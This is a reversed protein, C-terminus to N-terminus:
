RIQAPCSDFEGAWLRQLRDEARNTAAGIEVGVFDIGIEHMAVSPVAMEAPDQRLQIVAHREDDRNVRELRQPRPFAFLEAAAVIKRTQSSLRRQFHRIRDDSNGALCFRVDLPKEVDLGLPQVDDVVSDVEIFIPLDFGGRCENRVSDIRRFRIRSKTPRIVRCFPITWRTRAIWNM